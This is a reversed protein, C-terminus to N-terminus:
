QRPATDGSNRRAERCGRCPPRQTWTAPNICCGSKEFVIELFKRFTYFGCELGNMLVAHGFSLSEVASYCLSSSSAKRTSNESICLDWLGKGTM